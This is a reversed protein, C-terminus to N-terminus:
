GLAAYRADGVVLAVYTSLALGLGAYLLLFTQGFALRSSTAPARDGNGGDDRDSDLRILPRGLAFFALASWPFLGFGLQRVLYDFTISPIGNRPTGAILASRHGAVLTSLAAVVIALSLVGLAAVVLVDRRHARLNAGFSRGAVVDPGIG